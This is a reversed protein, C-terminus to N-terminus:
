RKKILGRLQFWWLEPASEDFDRTLMLVFKTYAGFAMKFALLTFSQMGRTILGRAIQPWMSIIDIFNKPDQSQVTAFSGYSM